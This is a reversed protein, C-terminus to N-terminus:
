KGAENRNRRERQPVPRDVHIVRSEFATAEANDVQAYTLLIVEDGVCGMRAAAGRLAIAGSGAPMSLAYTTLRSGNNLNLVHVQEGPLIDASALWHADIGVSGEYHLETATIRGGRIKSKLMM